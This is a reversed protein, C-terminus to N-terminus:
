SVTVQEYDFPKNASFKVLNGFMDMEFNQVYFRIDVKADLWIFGATHSDQKENVLEAVIIVSNKADEDTRM